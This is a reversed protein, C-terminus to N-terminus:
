KQSDRLDTSINPPTHHPDVREFQSTGGILLEYDLVSYLMRISVTTRSADITFKRPFQRYNGFIYSINVFVHIILGPM